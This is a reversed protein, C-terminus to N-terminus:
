ETLYMARAPKGWKCHTKTTLRFLYFSPFCERMRLTDSVPKIRSSIWIWLKSVKATNVGYTQWNCLIVCQRTTGAECLMRNIILVSWFCANASASKFIGRKCCTEPNRCVRQWSAYSHVALPEIYGRQWRFIQARCPVTVAASIVCFAFAYVSWHM